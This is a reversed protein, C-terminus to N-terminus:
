DAIPKVPTFAYRSQLQPGAPDTPAAASDDRGGVDADDPKSVGADGGLQGFIMLEVDNPHKWTEGPVPPVEGPNLPAVLRPTVLVVLETEERRYRVSRFLAGLVPLDGLLPTARKSAVTRSRLLGSIALTQGERLEVTTSTTRKRLGPVRVGGAAVAITEDLDSVETVLEMRIRGDGLVIPTYILKIGFERYEIAIGEEQPVPVPFEGGALFEGQEGSIVTLEPDALLRLLNSDRLANIYYAFPDGNISALGFLQVGTSPNPIGLGTITNDEEFYGLPSIQGVNSGIITGQGDDFGMNIGFEKGATRSVEAFRIRLSVQREGAVTIFNEVPGYGSAIRVARDATEADSANGTLAIRGNLDVAEIPEGPLLMELQSELQRLDATSQLLLTQAEDQEDWFVLQTTGSEKATVLLQTPSLPQVDALSTKALAVRHYPRSTTIVRSDNVTLRITEKGSVLETTATETTTSLETVAPVTSPSIGVTPATSQPSLAAPAGAPESHNLSVRFDGVLQSTEPTAETDPADSTAAFPNPIVSFMEWDGTDNASEIVDGDFADTAPAEDVYLREIFRSFAGGFLSEDEALRNPDATPELTAVTPLDGNPTSGVNTDGLRVDDAIGSAPSYLGLSAVAAAVGLKMRRTATLTAAGTVGARRPPLTSQTDKRNM